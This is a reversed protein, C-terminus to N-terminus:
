RREPAAAPAEDRRWITLGPAGLALAGLTAPAPSPAALTADPADISNDDPGKTKGTTIRKNPITEYAYGDLFASAQFALGCIDISTSLRAWGYHIKGKITFRLGLYRQTANIWNGSHTSRDANRFCGEMLGDPEFRQKSGITIGPGFARPFGKNDVVVADLSQLGAVTLQSYDVFNGTTHWITKAFVNFQFDPIGDNNVDLTYPRGSYIVVGSPTYIIKAAAPQVFALLGVGAAGAAIAYMNLKHDTSESLNTTKRPGSSRKM